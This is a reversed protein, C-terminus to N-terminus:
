LYIVVLFQLLYVSDKIVHQCIGHTYIYIPMYLCACVPNNMFLIPIKFTNLKPIQLNVFTQNAGFSLYLTHTKGTVLNFFITKMEITMCRQSHFHRRWLLLRKTYQLKDLWLQYDCHLTLKSSFKFIIWRRIVINGPSISL